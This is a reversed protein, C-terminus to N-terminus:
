PPGCCGCAIRTRRSRRCRRCHPADLNGFVRPRHIYHANLDEVYQKQVSALRSEAAAAMKFEFNLTSQNVDEAEDRVDKKKKKKKKKELHRRRRAFAFTARQRTGGLRAAFLFLRADRLQLAAGLL